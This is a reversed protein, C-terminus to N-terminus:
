ENNIRMKFNVFAKGLTLQKDTYHNGECKTNNITFKIRQYGGRWEIDTIECNFEYRSDQSFRTWEPRFLFGEQKYIDGFKSSINVDSHYYGDKIDGCYIIKRKDFIIVKEFLSFIEENFHGSAIVLKDQSKLWSILKTRTVQDINNLPEDMLVISNKGLVSQVVSLLQKQGGSLNSISEEENFNFTELVDNYDNIRNRLVDKVKYQEPLYSNQLHYGFTPFANKQQIGNVKVTANTNFGLISQIFYTKGSGNEGIILCNKNININQDMYKISLM